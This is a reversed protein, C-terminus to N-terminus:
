EPILQNNVQNYFTRGNDLTYARIGEFERTYKGYKPNSWEIEVPLDNSINLLTNMHKRIIDFKRPLDSPLTADLTVLENQLMEIEMANTAGLGSAGTSSLKKLVALADLALGSKLTKIESELKTIEFGGIVDLAPVNEVMKAWYDSGTRPLSSPMIEGILKPNELAEPSNQSYRSIGMLEEARRMTTEVEQIKNLAVKKTAQREQFPALEKAVKQAESLTSGRSIVVGTIDEVVTYDGNEGKVISTSPTQAELLSSLSSTETAKVRRKELALGEQYRKEEVLAAASATQLAKNEKAFQTRLALARAPDIQAILKVAQQQGEPTTVDLQGLQEQVQQGATRTDVGFLGGAGQRMMQERQPAQLALSRALNSGLGTGQVASARTIGERELDPTGALGTLLGTIDVKAM